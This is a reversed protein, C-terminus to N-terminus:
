FLLHNQIPAIPVAVDSLERRGQLFFHLATELQKSSV